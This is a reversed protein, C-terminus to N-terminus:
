GSSREEEKWARTPNAGSSINKIRAFVGRDREMMKTYLDFGERGIRRVISAAVYVEDRFVRLTGLVEIYEGREFKLLTDACEDWARIQAAGKGDSLLAEVVSGRRKVDELAGAVRVRRLKLALSGIELQFEM